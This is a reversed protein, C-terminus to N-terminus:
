QSWIPDPDTRLIPTLSNKFNPWPWNKIPTGTSISNRRAMRRNSYQCNLSNQGVQRKPFTELKFMRNSNPWKKTKAPNLHEYYTPYEFIWQCFKTIKPTFILRFPGSFCPRPRCQSDKPGIDTWYWPGQNLTRKKQIWSVIDNVIRGSVSIFIAFVITIMNPLSFFSFNIKGNKYMIFIFGNNIQPLRNVRM